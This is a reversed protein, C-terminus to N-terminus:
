YAIHHATLWPLPDVAIGGNPHIELHLHPGTSHGTNGSLGVIQAPAVVEGVNVSVKSMHGFYSITGDWYRVEVLIGFGSEAGAYIVTGSSMSALPTGVPVAFDEGAHLLGWRYGFGSTTVPNTIPLRWSHAFAAREAGDAAAALKRRDDSRAVETARDVEKLASAAAAAQAHEVEVLHEGKTSTDTTRAALSTMAAASQSFIQKQTRPSTAVAAGAACFM